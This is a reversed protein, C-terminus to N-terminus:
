GWSNTYTLLYDSQVKMETEKAQTVGTKGTGLTAIDNEASADYVKIIPTYTRTSNSAYDLSFMAKFQFHQLFDWQGYING